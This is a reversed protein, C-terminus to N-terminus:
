GWQRDHKKSTCGEFGAEHMANYIHSEYHDAQVEQLCVIDPGVDVIERILNHFSHDDISSLTNAICYTIYWVLKAIYVCFLVSVSLGM